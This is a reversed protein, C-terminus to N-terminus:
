VIQRSIEAYQLFLDLFKRFVFSLFTSNGNRLFFVLKKVQLLIGVPPRGAGGTPRVRLCICPLNDRGRHGRRQQWRRSPRCSLAQSSCCPSRWRLDCGQLHPRPIGPDIPRYKPSLYSIVILLSSTFPFHLALTLLRFFCSSPAKTLMVALGEDWM